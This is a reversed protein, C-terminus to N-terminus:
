VVSKRDLVRNRIQGDDRGEKERRGGKESRRKGKNNRTERSGLDVRHHTKDVRGGEEGHQRPTERDVGCQVDRPDIVRARGRMDISM